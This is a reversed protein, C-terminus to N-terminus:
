PPGFGFKQLIRQGEEGAVFDLFARAREANAGGRTVAVVVEARPAWAGRAEDLVVVDSIGRVDTKYVVAAPVEARRAYALVAAVDGGFVIRGQLAQWKGLRQLAQKAYQGAPVAGPEGIALMEGPPLQDLTEFTLPRAGRPGILVLQNTAVVRRTAPDAHGSKLLADVPAASAFLAADIPAGGQVQKRLDGSAGYTAVLDPGPHGARFASALEPVVARLSAAAALTVTPEGKCGLAFGGLAAVSLGIWVLRPLCARM